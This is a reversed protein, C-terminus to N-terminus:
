FSFSLFSLLYLLVFIYNRNSVYSRQHKGLLNMCITDEMVTRMGIATQFLIVTIFFTWFLPSRLLVADDIECRVGSGPLLLLSCVMAFGIVTSMHLAAKQCKYKDTIAGVIPRIVLSPLQIVTLVLGVTIPSYGRQKSITSLFPLVPASAIPHCM